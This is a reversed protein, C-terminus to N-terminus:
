EALAEPTDGDPVYGSIGSYNSILEALAPARVKEYEAQATDRVKEYEAYATDRVKEYEAYATDRVKKYEALATDRVKEYEAQATDRVKKYEALATDRVKEYEAQATDRVKKYEAQAPARVKEYEALATDRVKEYEAQATDRVKKYEAQAPACFELLAICKQVIDDRANECWGPLSKNEDWEFSEPQWNPFQVRVFNRLHANTNEKRGLRNITLSHSCDGDSDPETFWLNLEKDVIIGFGNCM